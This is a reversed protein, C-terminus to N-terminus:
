EKPNIGKSPLKYPRVTIQGANSYVRKFSGPKLYTPDQTITSRKQVPQQSSEQTSEKSESKM